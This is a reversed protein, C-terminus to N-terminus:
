GPLVLRFRSGRGPESELEVKGGHAEMVHRVLHLGLGYGGKGRGNPVRYFREFIRSQEARSIGIGHDEVEILVTGDRAFLRVGIERREPSYKVANDLLNVLAQSVAAPDFRVQPATPPISSELRFGAREIYERYDEVTRAIVPAPDAEEFNYVREGREIRSFTLVANVLRTLRESERMIVRYSDLREAGELGRRALLTEAYLRINTIPTKLEHSVSSVFDSRLRNTRAERSVDRLLVFMGAGLVALVLAIAGGYLALGDPAALNLERQVQARLARNVWDQNVSFGSIRDNDVATYLVRYPGFGYSYIEGERLPGQHRFHDRLERAFTYSPHEHGGLEAAFYEAQDAPLNWRGSNIKELLGATDGAEIAAVIGFPRQALDREDPWKAAIERWVARAEKARGLKALCRAVRSRALAKWRSTRALEQYLVLASEPRNLVLEEDEAAAFEAPAAAPPLSKLAPKVVEGHDIIFPYQAVPHQKGAFVSEAAGRLRTEVTAALKDAALTELARRQREFSQIGLWLMVAAPVVITATYILLARRYV